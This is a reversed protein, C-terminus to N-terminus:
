RVSPRRWPLPMDLFPTDPPLMPCFGHVYRVACRSYPTPSSTDQDVSDKPEGGPGYCESDIAWITDKMRFSEFVRKRLGLHEGCRLWQPDMKGFAPLVANLRRYEMGDCQGV